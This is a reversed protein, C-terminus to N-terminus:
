ATYVSTFYTFAKRRILRKKGRKNRQEAIERVSRQRQIILQLSFSIGESGHMSLRVHAYVNAYVITINTFLMLICLARVNAFHM